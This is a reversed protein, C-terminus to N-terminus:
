PHKFLLENEETIVNSYPDRVSSIQLTHVGQKFRFERQQRVRPLRKRAATNTLPEHFIHTM